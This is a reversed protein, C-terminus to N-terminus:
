SGQSINDLVEKKTTNTIAVKFKFMPYCVTIVNQNYYKNIIYM